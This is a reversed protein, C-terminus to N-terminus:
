IGEMLARAKDAVVPMVETSREMKRLRGKLNLWQVHDYNAIAEAEPALGLARLFEGQSMGLARRIDKLERGTM